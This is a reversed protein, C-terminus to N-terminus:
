FFKKYVFSILFTLKSFIIREGEKDRTFLKVCEINGFIVLLVCSDYCSLLFSIFKRQEINDTMNISFNIQYNESLSKKCLHLASLAKCYSKIVDLESKTSQRSIEIKQQRPSCFTSRIELSTLFLRELNHPM